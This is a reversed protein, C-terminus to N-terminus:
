DPREDSLGAWMRAGGHLDEAFWIPEDIVTGGPLTLGVPTGRTWYRFVRDEGREVTGIVPSSTDAWKRVNGSRAIRIVRGLEGHDDHLPYYLRGNVPFVGRSGEPLQGYDPDVKPEADIGGAWLRSGSSGIWWEGIGNVLEGAVWGLVEVETGKPIVPGTDLSQTNAWQRRRLNVTTKVTMRQAEFKTGNEVMDEMGDWPSGDPYRPMVPKAYVASGDDPTPVPVTEGNRAQRALNWYRRIGIKVEPWIGRNLIQASCWKGTWYQHLVAGNGPDVDQMELVAGHLAMGVELSTSWVVNGGFAHEAGFSKNGVPTGAHWSVENMPGTQIIKGDDFIFTYGGVVGGPRGAAAWAYEGEANSRPNGTDHYTSKDQGTFPIFSRFRPHDIIRIDVPIWSPLYAVRKAGVFQVPRMTVTSM